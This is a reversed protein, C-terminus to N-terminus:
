LHRFHKIENEIPSRMVWLMKQMRDFCNWYTISRRIADAVPVVLVWLCAPCMSTGNGIGGPTPHEGISTTSFVSRRAWSTTLAAMFHPTQSRVLLLNPTM